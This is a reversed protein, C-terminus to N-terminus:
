QQLRPPSPMFKNVITPASGSILVNNIANIGLLLVSNILRAAKPAVNTM